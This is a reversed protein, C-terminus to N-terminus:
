PHGAPPPPNPPGKSRRVQLEHGSCGPRGCLQCHFVSLCLTSTRGRAGLEPHPGPCPYLSAETLAHM